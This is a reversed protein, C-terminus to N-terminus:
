LKIDIFGCNDYGHTESNKAATGDLPSSLLGNMSIQQKNIAKSDNCTKKRKPIKHNRISKSKDSFHMEIEELSRGETEPLINYMLIWGTAIVVCNFLTIGPLSLGTELNYYSRIAIFSLMYNLAATLGSALGRVRHFLFWMKYSKNANEIAM